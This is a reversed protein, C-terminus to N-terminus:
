GYLVSRVMECRPPIGYKLLGENNVLIEATDTIVQGTLLNEIEVDWVGREDDWTAGTVRHSLVFYKPLDYVDFVKQIYRQIEQGTSYFEDWDPNKAWCFLLMNSTALASYTPNFRRNVQYSHSPIDCRVGPFWTGGIKPNKEYVTLSVNNLQDPLM